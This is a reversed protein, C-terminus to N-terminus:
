FRASLNVYAFRGAGPIRAGVAVDGGTVRNIGDLHDYYLRDFLNEIGFGLKVDKSARWDGRWDFVAYGSSAQENTLGPLNYLAVKDQGQAARLRLAHTWAGQRHEAELTLRLPAIRYLDANRDLDRGRVWSLVGSFGWAEGRWHWAGDLGHLRADHNQYQLVNAPAPGAPNPIPSGIIYGDVRQHFAGLRLDHAALRGKVALNLAHAVEPKLNPNGYYSNNDAQGASANLPTWEYRELLSPSRTKRSLGIEYGPGGTDTYQFLANWDWNYDTRQRDLANFAGGLGTTAVAQAAGARVQGTNTRVTDSRLGFLARWGGSLVGDWEGYLGLRDRSADRLIDQGFVGTSVNWQYAAFDNGLWELGFRAEGGALGHKGGLALGTDTSESPAYMRTGANPRLSYNDMLHEIDHRYVRATIRTAGLRGEWALNVADADDKVIDMPLAPTGTDRSRQQSLSLDLRGSELARAYALKHRRTDYGSDKIRGKAFRLDDGQATGGTYALANDRNATGLELSLNWGDNAGSFGAEARGGARWEPGAGFAPRTPRALIAAGLADGGASVPAAGAVLTLDELEVPAAYHLPPDMHNPCAPTIRMGDVQINVRDGALGRVQAIGTLPGNRVVAAGPQQGLLVATDAVGPAPPTITTAYPRTVPRAASVTIDELIHVTTDAWVGAAPASLLILALTAPRSSKQM